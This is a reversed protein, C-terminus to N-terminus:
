SRRWYRYWHAFFDRGGDLWKRFAGAINTAPDTGECPLLQFLGCAGSGEHNYVNPDGGSEHKIVNLAEDCPWAYACVMDRWQEVTYTFGGYSAAQAAARPAPAPPPTPTPPIPTPTPLIPTPTLTPAPTLTSTATATPTTTGVLGPNITPQPNRM